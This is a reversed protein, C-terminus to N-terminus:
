GVLKVGTEEAIKLVWREIRDVKHSLALMEQMYHDATKAYGDVANQLSDQGVKIAQIETRLNSFENDLYKFLKQTTKEDMGVNYLRCADFLLM